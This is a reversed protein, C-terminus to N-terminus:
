PLTIMNVPYFQTDRAGNWYFLSRVAAEIAPASTLGRTDALYAAIAAVHPAAFSTGDLRQYANYTLDGSQSEGVGYGYPMGAWPHIIEKGPAWVEICIATKGM